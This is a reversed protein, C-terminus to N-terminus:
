YIGRKKLEILVKKPMKQEKFVEIMEMLQKAFITDANRLVRNQEKIKEIELMVDRMKEQKFEEAVKDEEVGARDIYKDPMSSSFAWGYRKCLQYRNLRSAYYTASSHRFLHPNIHKNLARKGIKSLLSRVGGYTSPYLQNSIKSKDPHLDLWEKILDTTPKWFLGMVRGTTKSFENRITVKYYPIEGKVETLDELRINLFEEIRCGSDFLLAILFKQKITNCKKLLEYIEEESLSPIEKGKFRTEIWDTLEHYKKTEGINWRLFQIITKKMNSKTEEAFSKKDFRKIKNENLGKILKEMDKVNIKDLDKKLFLVVSKLLYLKKLRARVGVQKRSANKRATKGIASDELFKIILNVNKKSLDKKLKEICTEFVKESNHIDIKEM